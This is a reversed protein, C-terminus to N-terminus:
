YICLIIYLPFAADKNPFRIKLFEAILYLIGAGIPGGVKAIGCGIGTGFGIEAGAEEIGTGVGDGISGGGEAIGSGVM